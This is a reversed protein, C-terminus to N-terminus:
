WLLTVVYCGMMTLDSCKYGQLATHLLKSVITLSPNSTHCLKINPDGSDLSDRVAKIILAGYRTHYLQGLQEDAWSLTPLKFVRANFRNMNLKLEEVSMLEVDVTCSPCILLAPALINRPHSVKHRTRSRSIWLHTLQTKYGTVSTM